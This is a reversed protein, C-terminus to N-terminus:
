AAKLRALATRTDDRLIMIDVQQEDLQRLVRFVHGLIGEVVAPYDEDPYAAFPMVATERVQLSGNGRRAQYRVERRAPAADAAPGQAADDQGGQVAPPLKSRDSGM